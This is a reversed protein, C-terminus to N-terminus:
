PPSGRPGGGGKLLGMQRDRETKEVHHYWCMWEVNGPSWAGGNARPDIHDRELYYRRDCGRVSCTMGMFDPPKGIELATQLVAPPNKGYHKVTTIAVGDHLVAKVFAHRAAARVTSEPVPGGGIIHSEGTAVDCVYVVDARKAHGKGGGALMKNFADAAHRDRPEPLEDGRRKAARRLRDTEADLRNVFPIGIHPELAYTGRVMGLEDRWHRHHRAEHQRGALVEPTIASQRKNRGTERLSKLTDRRAADLMEAESGPCHQETKAVEEAQELSLDGSTLAAKTDPLDTIWRATALQREAQAPTTGGVHALWDAADPFGKRRHAGCDSARAAALVRALACAKETRALEEVLAACDNAPHMAPDFDRLVERLSRAIATLGM